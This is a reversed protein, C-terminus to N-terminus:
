QPDGVYWYTLKAQLFVQEVSSVTLLFISDHLDIYRNIIYLSLWLEWLYKSIEM